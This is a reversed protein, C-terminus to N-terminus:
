CNIIWPLLYPILSWTSNWVQWHPSCQLQESINPLLPSLVAKGISFRLDRGCSSFPFQRRNTSNPIHHAQVSIHNLTMNSCTGPLLAPKIFDRQGGRVDMGVDTSCGVGRGKTSNSVLWPSVQNSRCFYVWVKKPISAWVWILIKVQKAASICVGPLGAPGLPCLVSSGALLWPCCSSLGLNSGFIKCWSGPAPAVTQPAFSLRIWDRNQVIFSYWLNLGAKAKTKSDLLMFKPKCRVGLSIKNLLKNRGPYDPSPLLDSQKM